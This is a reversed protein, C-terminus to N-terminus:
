SKYNKVVQTILESIPRYQFPIASKLKTSDYHLQKFASNINAKYLSRKKLKFVCLLKEIQLLSLLQWRKVENLKVVAGFSKVILSLLQKYTMNEAVVIFQENAIESNMLAIMAKVVDNVGVVGVAGSTIYNFGQDIKRFLEGTGSTWFGSGLIVGPNVIIVQLGEQAGRWVELEADYKTIAYINHKNNEPQWPTLETIPSKLDEGLTAISSVHCLKAVNHSLCLNVINATGVVNVSRSIKYDKPNFSLNAACHYVQKVNNFAKDLAPIDTVDAKVWEIAEFLVDADDSYYSFVKRVADIKAESRFIARIVRGEEALKYLLHAGLLGTGGTVLIM